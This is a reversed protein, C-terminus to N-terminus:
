VEVIVAEKFGESPDYPLYGRQNTIIRCNGISYAAKDHTHGHIWYKASSSKVLDDLHSAYCPTLHHNAFVPNVSNASPAHHTVVVRRPHETKFIDTLFDRTKRHESLTDTPNLKRYRGEKTKCTIAKYDTMGQKADYASVTPNGFLAFDSWLTGGVFQVGDIEVSSNHLFHIDLEKATTNLKHIIKHFKGKYFEHNGAVYIIHQKFHERAWLMGRDGIDIDGALVVVDAELTPPTWSEFELHLDSFYAIKMEPLAKGKYAVTQM